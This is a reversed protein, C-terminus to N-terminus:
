TEIWAGTFSAADAEAQWERWERTEIWAGTFSAALVIMALGPLLM